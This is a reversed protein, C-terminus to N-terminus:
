DKKYGLTKFGMEETLKEMRDVMSERCLSIGQRPLACKGDIVYVMDLSVMGRKTM